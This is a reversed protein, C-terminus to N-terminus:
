RTPPRRRPRPIFRPTESSYHAYNSFRARLRQEEWSAKINFFGITVAGLAIGFASGSRIAVAVVILVVGTYIPHRVLRYPGSTRLTGRANPVPTATLSRGLAIGAVVAVAVGVWFM